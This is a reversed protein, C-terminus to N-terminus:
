FMGARLLFSVGLAYVHASAQPMTNAAVTTYVPPMCSSSNPVSPDAQAHARILQHKVRSKDTAQCSACCAVCGTVNSM